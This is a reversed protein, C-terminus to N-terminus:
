LFACHLLTSMVTALCYGSCDKWNWWDAKVEQKDSTCLFDCAGFSVNQILVLSVVQCKAARFFNAITPELILNLNSMRSLM